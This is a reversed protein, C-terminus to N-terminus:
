ISAHLLGYLRKAVAPGVRRKETIPAAALTAETAAWVGTLSGGCAKLVADAVAASVGPCAQLVTAAFAAPDEKNGRKTVSVTHAYAKQAGDEQVFVTPEKAIQDRLISCLTATGELSETQIVAVGYRLQLRNLFKRLTEETFKGALRDLSGEIIYLPRAGTQQCFTLLRTRQEQYRGDLISAELDAATKREAIVGGAAISRGAATNSNVAVVGGTSVSEGSLGIWIDGVPLNRTSVNTLLPILGRERTDCCVSAM